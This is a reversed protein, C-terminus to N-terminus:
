FKDAIALRRRKNALISGNPDGSVIEPKDDEAKAGSLRQVTEEYTAIRDILGAAKADRATLARGEGYGAKVQAPTVGRGKAVDGVFLGYMEDVTAQIHDRAETSLPQDPNGETKYKGASIYTTKIGLRENMASYDDHVTFVGISGTLAEPTAVIEDAQSAVWYAASAALSNSLAVVHKHERLARVEGALAPLGAVTGGPSDIDLLVTSITDDQAVQRLTATLREVSTGGFFLSWLSDRKTIAGMISVRAMRGSKPGPRTVALIEGAGEGKPLPSPHPDHNPTLASLMVELASPLIAWVEASAQKFLEARRAELTLENRM